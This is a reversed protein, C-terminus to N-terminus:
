EIAVDFFWQKEFSKMSLYFHHRAQPMGVDHLDEVEIGDIPMWINYHFIQLSGREGIVQAPQVRAIFPDRRMLHRAQELCEGGREIISVLLAHAASLNFGAIVRGCIYIDM